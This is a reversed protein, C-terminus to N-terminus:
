LLPISNSPGVFNKQELFTSGWSWKLELCIGRCYLSKWINPFYLIQFSTKGAITWVLEWKEVGYKWYAEKPGQFYAPFSCFFYFCTMPLNSYLVKFTTKHLQMIFNWNAMLLMCLLSSKREKSEKYVDPIRQLDKVNPLNTCTICVAPKYITELSTSHNQLLLTTRWSLSYINSHQDRM